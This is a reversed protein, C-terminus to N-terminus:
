KENDGRDLWNQPRFPNPQRGTEMLGENTGGAQLFQDALLQEIETTSLEGPLPAMTPGGPLSMRRAYAADSAALTAAIEDDTM